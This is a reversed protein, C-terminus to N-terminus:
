SPWKTSQSNTTHLRTGRELCFIMHLTCLKKNKDGILGLAQKTSSVRRCRTIYFHESHDSRIFAEGFDQLIKSPDAFLFALDNYGGDEDVRGLKSRVFIKGRIRALLLLIELLQDTCHM